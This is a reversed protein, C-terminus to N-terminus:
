RGDSVEPLMDLVNMIAARAQEIKEYVTDLVDAVAGDVDCDQQRLAFNCVHVFNDAQDMAMHAADLEVNLRQKLTPTVPKPAAVTLVDRANQLIALADGKEDRNIAVEIADLTSIALNAM